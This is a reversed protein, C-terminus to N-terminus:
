VIVTTLRFVANWVIFSAFHWGFVFWKDETCNILVQLTNELAMFAKDCFITFLLFFYFIFIFPSVGNEIILKLDIAIFQVCEFVHIYVLLSAM